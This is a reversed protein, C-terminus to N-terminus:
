NLSDTRSGDSGRFDTAEQQMITWKCFQKGYWIERTDALIEEVERYKDGLAVIMRGNWRGPTQLKSVPVRGHVEVMRTEHAVASYVLALGVFDASSVAIGESILPMAFEYPLM